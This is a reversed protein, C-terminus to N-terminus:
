KEKENLKRWRNITNSLRPLFDLNELNKKVNEISNLLELVPLNFAMLGEARKILLIKPSVVDYNYESLMFFQASSDVEKGNYWLSFLTIDKLNSKCIENLYPFLNNFTDKVKDEPVFRRIKEARKQVRKLAEEITDLFVIQFSITYEQRKAEEIDRIIQFKNKSDKVINKEFIIHHNKKLAERFLNGALSSSESQVFEAAKKPNIEKLKEYEPLMKKLDDFNVDVYNINKPIFKDKVSTKGSGISGLVFQIVPDSQIEKNQLKEAIIKKHLTKRKSDKRFYEKSKTTNSLIKLQEEYEKKRSSDESLKYYEELSIM